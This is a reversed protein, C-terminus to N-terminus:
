VTERVEWEAVVARVKSAIVEEIEAPNQFFLLPFDVPLQKRAVMMRTVWEEARRQLKLQQATLVEMDHRMEALEETSESVPLSTSDTAGVDEVTENFETDATSTRAGRGMAVASDKMAGGVGVDMGGGEGVGVSALSSSSSQRSTKSLMRGEQDELSSMSTMKPVGPSRTKKLMKQAISKAKNEMSEDDSTATSGGSVSRRRSGIAEPEESLAENLLRLDVASQTPHRKPSGTRSRRPTGNASLLSDTTTMRNNDSRRKAAFSSTVDRILISLVQEPREKAIAVYLELDQEGSDGILVFKAKPFSDLV